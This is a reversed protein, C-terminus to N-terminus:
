KLVSQGRRVLVLSLDDQLAGSRLRALNVIERGLSAFERQAATGCIKERSAYKVLGDSAVLVTGDWAAREFAVPKAAGSGLLPKQVQNRTLDDCGNGVVWAASDGVSAGCIGNEMVAVIVAAAQGGQCSIQFDLKTLLEAWQEPVGLNETRSVFSKVWMVVFNAAEDGGSMGGAGDAVAVVVGSNHQVVEARDESRRRYSDLIRATQFM